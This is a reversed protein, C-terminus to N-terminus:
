EQFVLDIFWLLLSVRYSCKAKLLLGTIIAKSQVECAKFIKQPVLHLFCRLRTSASCVSFGHGSLRVLVAVEDYSYM